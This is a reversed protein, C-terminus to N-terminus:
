LEASIPEGPLITCNGGGDVTKVAHLVTREIGAFRGRDSFRGPTVDLIGMILPRESELPSRSPETNKMSSRNTM